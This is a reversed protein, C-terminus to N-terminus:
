ISSSAAASPRASRHRQPPALLQRRCIAKGLRRSGGNGPPGCATAEVPPPPGPALHQKSRRRRDRTGVGSAILQKSRRRRAEWSKVLSTRTAAAAHYRSSSNVPLCTHSALATKSRRSLAVLLNSQPTALQRGHGVLAPLCTGEEKGAKVSWYNAEVLLM